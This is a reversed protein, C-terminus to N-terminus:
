PASRAGPSEIVHVAVYVTVCASISEPETEFVAVAVPVFGDSGPVGGVEVGDEAREALEVGGDGGFAFEGEEGVRLAFGGCGDGFGMPFVQLFEFGPTEGDVGEGFFDGFGAGLIEAKVFLLYWADEQVQAAQGFTGVRGFGRRM